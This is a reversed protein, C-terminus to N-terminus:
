VPKFTELCKQAFVQTKRKITQRKVYDLKAKVMPNFFEESRKSGFIPRRTKQISIGCITGKPCEM